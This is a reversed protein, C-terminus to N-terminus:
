FPWVWDLIRTGWGPRMKDNVVGRGGYMIRADAIYQSSITNETTIDEPRVVGTIVIFQDEANVSLQRRGELLLNGNELVSTVRATIRAKLNSDRKTKGEGQLKNSLSGGLSLGSAITNAPSTQAIGKFGATISSEKNTDTKANNAGESSEEIIITVIDNIYRAKKDAFLSNGSNVGAWISGTPPPPAKIDRPRTYAHDKVIMHKETTCGWFCSVAAAGALIIITKKVKSRM